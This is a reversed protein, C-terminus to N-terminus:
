GGQLLCSRGFLAAGSQPGPESDAIPTVKVVRVRPPTAVNEFSSNSAPPAPVLDPITADPHPCFAFPLTSGAMWFPMVRGFLKTFAVRAPAHVELDQRSLSPHAFAGVSLASGCM